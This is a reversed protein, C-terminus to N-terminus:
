QCYYKQVYTDKRSGEDSNAQSTHSRLYVNNEYMIWLNHLKM